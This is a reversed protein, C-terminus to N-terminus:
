GAEVAFRNMASGPIYGDLRNGTPRFTEFVARRTKSGPKLVEEFFGHKRASFVWRGAGKNLGALGIEKDTMHDTALVIEATEKLIGHLKTELLREICDIDRTFEEPLILRVAETSGDVMLLEWVALPTCHSIARHIRCYEDGKIKIRTGDEFKVVFGEESPPMTKAIRLIDDVTSFSHHAVHRYPWPVAPLYDIELGTETYVALLVLESYDYPVVIRNEPYIIESLYTWGPVLASSKGELAAEAWKAQESYFSGKTACRWRGGHFFIIGLSGDLKETVTFGSDPAVTGNEGYNFFKPFPTAVVERAETDLILGRAITSIPDWRKDFTCRDTYTYIALPGDTKKGVIGEAVHAELGSLLEDYPITRAHHVSM